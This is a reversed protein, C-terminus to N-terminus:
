LKDPGGCIIHGGNSSKRINLSVFFLESKKIFFQNQFTTLSNM